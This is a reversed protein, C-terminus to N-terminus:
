MGPLEQVFHLVDTHIVEIPRNADIRQIFPLNMKEFQVAVQALYEKKEFDNLTDGRAETIRTVGTEIPAYFLLALDPTPAFANKKFIAAPDLGAAGQYAMTSLYYRDCLVTKGSALAPAIITDVHEKRDSLFFELEEELTTDQRNTSLKRIQQGYFGNTPEFSSVVPLGKKQLATALLKLQTSKGTGDTGEFIILKGKTDLILDIANLFHKDLRAATQKLAEAEIYFTEQAIKILDM